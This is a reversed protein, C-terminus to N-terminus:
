QMEKWVAPMGKRAARREEQIAPVFFVGPLQRADLVLLWENSRDGNLLFSPATSLAEFRTPVFDLPIINVLNGSATAYVRVAHAARDALLLYQGDGSVALGAPIVAPANAQALSAFPFGSLGSDFEWIQQGNLDVAYLHRGTSDFAVAAPGAMSSLLTPSQGAASLYLGSQAVGFVIQQGSPDIALTSAPGWSSLDVPVDATASGGSVRIRQLQNTSSSYLLAFSGDRNWQVRDVPDTLGAISSEVPALAALRHVFVVQGTKTILASDGDPAISAFSVRGVIPLGIHSAGPLGLLPRITQSDESYTFGLIPGQVNASQAIAPKATESLTAIVSVFVILRRFM